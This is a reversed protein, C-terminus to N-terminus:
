TSLLRSRSPPSPTQSPGVGVGQIRFGLACAGLGLGSVRFLNRTAVKLLFATAACRLGECQCTKRGADARASPQPWGGCRTTRSTSQHQSLLSDWPTPSPTHAPNVPPSSAGPSTSSRPSSPTQCTQPAPSADGSVPHCTHLPAFSLILTSTQPPRPALPLSPRFRTVKTYVGSTSRMTEKKREMDVGSPPPPPPLSPCRPSAPAPERAKITHDIGKDSNCCTASKASRMSHSHTFTHTARVRAHTHTCARPRTRPRTGTRAHTRTSAHM